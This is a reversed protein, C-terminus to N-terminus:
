RCSPLRMPTGIRSLKGFRSRASCPKRGTRTSVASPKTNIQRLPSGGGTALVTGTYDTGNVLSIIGPSNVRDARSGIAVTLTYIANTQLPGMDQYIGGTVSPNFMNIYCYQNGAAPAAMPTIVTYDTGGAWQSGIDAGGVENFATWRTPVTSILQGPGSAANLEFSPNSVPIPSAHTVSLTFLVAASLVIPKLLTQIM